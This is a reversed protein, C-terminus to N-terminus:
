GHKKRKMTPATAETNWRAGLDLTLQVPDSPERAKDKWRDWLRAKEFVIWLQELDEPLHSRNTPSWLTGSHITWGEWAADPIAYGSVYKLLVLFARPIRTRGSEWNRVTKTTVGLIEAAQSVSLGAILRAEIFLEAAITTRKQKM